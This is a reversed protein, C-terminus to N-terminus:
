DRVYISSLWRPSYPSDTCESDEKRDVVIYNSFPDDEEFLVDLKDGLQDNTLRDIDRTIDRAIISSVKRAIADIAAERSTYCTSKISM